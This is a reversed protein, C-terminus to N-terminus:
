VAPRRGYKKPLHMAGQVQYAGKSPGRRKASHQGSLFKSIAKLCCDGYKLFILGLVSASYESARLHSNARLQHAAEWLRREFKSYNNAM